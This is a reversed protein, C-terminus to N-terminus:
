APELCGFATREKRVNDQVVVPAVEAATGIGVGFRIGLCSLYRSQWAKEGGAFDQVELGTGIEIHGQDPSQLIHAKPIAGFDTLLLRYAILRLQAPHLNVVQHRRLHDLGLFQNKAPTTSYLDRAAGQEIVLAQEIARHKARKTQIEVADLPAFSPWQFHEIGDATQAVRQLLVAQCYGGLFSGRKVQMDYQAQRQAGHMIFGINLRK